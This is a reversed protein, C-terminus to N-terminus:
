CSSRCWDKPLDLSPTTSHTNLCRQEYLQGSSQEDEDINRERRQECRRKAMWRLHMRRDSRTMSTPPREFQSARSHEGNFHESLWRRSDEMESPERATVVVLCYGLDRLRRVGEQSGEIPVANYIKGTAYLDKVKAVTEDSLM